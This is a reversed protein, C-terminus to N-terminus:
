LSKSQSSDSNHARINLEFTDKVVKVIADLSFPKNMFADMGCRLAEERTSVDGNASMGIILQRKLRPSYIGSTEATSPSISSISSLASAKVRSDILYVAEFERFRLVCEIGGMVPMQIDMLVLDYYNKKMMNLGELGNKASDVAHGVKELNMRTMKVIPTSDDVVLVNLKINDSNCFKNPAVLPMTSEVVPSNIPKTPTINDHIDKIIPEIKTSESNTSVINSPEIYKSPTNRGASHHLSIKNPTNKGTRLERSLPSKRKNSPEGLSLSTVNKKASSHTSM